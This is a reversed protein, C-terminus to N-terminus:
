AQQHWPASISAFGNSPEAIPYVNFQPAVSHLLNTTQTVAIQLSQQGLVAGILIRPSNGVVIPYSGVFCSGAALTSGTKIGTMGQKGVMFDVNFVRRAVPLDAQPMRVIERFAPNQMAAQAILVQDRATSTTAPNVGAADAYSTQTMGLQHAAQNMQKVFNAESGAVQRAILTAINDGSPLLLGELLQRETLQEGARVRVVSDGSARDAQYELVDAATITIMPGDEGTKLPHAQLLLYATMMKTLSAIAVPQEAPTQAIVGLSEEGLAAQGQAPFSVAFSGPLKLQSPPPQLQIPPLPRFFQITGGALLAVLPIALFNQTRAM